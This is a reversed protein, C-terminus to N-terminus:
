SNCSIRRKTKKCWYRIFASCVPTLSRWSSLKKFSRRWARWFLPTETEARTWWWRWFFGKRGSFSFLMEIKRAGRLPWTRYAGTLGENGPRRLCDILDNRGCRRWKWRGLREANQPMNTGSARAIGQIIWQCESTTAEFISRRIPIAYAIYLGKSDYINLRERAM